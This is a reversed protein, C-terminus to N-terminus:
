PRREDRADRALGSAAPPPRASSSTGSDSRRNSLFARFAFAILRGSPSRRIKTAAEERWWGKENSRRGDGTRRTPTWSHLFSRAVVFAAPMYYRWSSKADRNRGSLSVVVVCHNRYCVASRRQDWRLQPFKRRNRSQYHKGGSRVLWAKRHVLWFEIGAHPERASRLGRGPDGM